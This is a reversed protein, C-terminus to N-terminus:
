MEGRDLMPAFNNRWLSKLASKVKTEDLIPAYGLQEAWSNWCQDIHCGLGSNITDLHNKDCLNIFYEGNFLEREIRSRGRAYINKCLQAFEAEGLEEAMIQAARLASVYMGSLWAIQGYWDTDLTNHQAGDIIGDKDVDHDILFQVAKKCRGWVRKLFANDKNMQHERYTRLVIGAQGDVAWHNNHEDRLRIRGTPEDFAVGYDVYERLYREFQPFL